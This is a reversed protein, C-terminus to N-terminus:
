LKIIVTKGDNIWSGRGGWNEGSIDYYKKGSSTQGVNCTAKDMNCLLWKRVETTDKGGLKQFVKSALTQTKNKYHTEIFVDRQGIMLYFGEM